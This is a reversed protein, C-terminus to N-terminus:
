RRRPPVGARRDALRQRVTSWHRTIASLAVAERIEDDTAGDHRAAETDFFVCYNKCPVQASVALSRRDSIGRTKMPLATNPDLFLDKIERWAAVVGEQPFQRMAFTPVMGYTREIDQYASAECRDGPKTPAPAMHNSTNDAYEPYMKGIEQKFLPLDIQMGNLVTSWHRELAAVAIAEKIQM